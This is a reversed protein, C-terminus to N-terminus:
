PHSFLLRWSGWYRSGDEAECDPAALDPIPKGGDAIQLTYVIEPIMTFDAYGADIEPKLGTFFSEGGNFWSVNIEVNPVGFGAADSVFIQLQPEGIALNCVLIQNELVFPPALTPTPTRTPLPTATATPTRSPRPTRTVTASPGITPTITNTPTLTGTPTFTPTLTYTPSPSPSVTPTATDVPTNSPVPSATLPDPAQGLMAALLGLAQAERPAVGEGLYRQAQAAMLLASDEEDLLALRAQARPLDGNAQYALAIMARYADKYDARLTSPTTDIYETPFIMWSFLLGLAIGLVLGTLLYWSGREERKM